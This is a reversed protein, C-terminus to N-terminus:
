SMVVAGQRLWRDVLSEKVAVPDGAALRTKVLGPLNKVDPYKKPDSTDAIMAAVTEAGHQAILQRAVSEAFVAAIAAPVPEEADPETELEGEGAKQPSPSPALPHPEPSPAAPVPSPGPKRAHRIAGGELDRDRDASRDSTERDLIDQVSCIVTGSEAAAAAKAPADAAAAKPMPSSSKPSIAQPTEVALIDDVKAGPRDVFTLPLQVVADPRHLEADRAKLAEGKRYSTPKHPAPQHGALLEAEKLSRMLRGVKSKDWEIGTRQKLTGAWATYSNYTDDRGKRANAALWFTVLELLIAAEAGVKQVVQPDIGIFSAPILKTGPPIPRPEPIARLRALEDAEVLVLGLRALLWGLVLLLSNVIKPTFVEKM